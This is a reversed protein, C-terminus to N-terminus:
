ENIIEKIRATIRFSCDFFLIVIYDLIENKHQQKQEEKKKIIM